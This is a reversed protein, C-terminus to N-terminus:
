HKARKRRIILATIFLLIVQPETFLIRQVPDQFVIEQSTKFIAMLSTLSVLEFISLTVFCLFSIILAVSIEKGNKMLFIFLSSIIVLTHTGFPLGISRIVFAMLALLVGFPIITRWKFPIKAIACALTVVAIQEPIGQLLLAIVPIDICSM